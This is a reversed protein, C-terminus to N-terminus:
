DIYSFRIGALSVYTNDGGTGYRVVKVVGDTSVMVLAPATLYAMCLFNEVATPRSGVPLTFIAANTTGSKVQGRVMITGDSM